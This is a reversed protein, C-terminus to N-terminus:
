KAIATYIVGVGKDKLIEVVRELEEGERVPMPKLARPEYWKRARQYEASLILRLLAFTVGEHRHREVICSSIHRYAVYQRKSAARTELGDGFAKFTVANTRPILWKAAFGLITAFLLFFLALPVSNLTAYIFAGGLFGLAIEVLMARSALPSQRWKLYAPPPFWTFLPETSKASGM